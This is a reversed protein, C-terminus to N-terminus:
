PPSHLLDGLKPQELNECVEVFMAPRAQAQGGPFQPHGFLLDLTSLVPRLGSAPKLGAADVRDRVLLEPPQRSRAPRGVLADGASLRSTLLSGIPLEAARGTSHRAGRASPHPAYTQSTLPPM